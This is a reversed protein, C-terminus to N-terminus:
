NNDDCEKIIKLYINNGRYKYHHKEIAELFEKDYEKIGNLIKVSKQPHNYYIDLKKNSDYKRLKGKTLKDLIVIISKDIITLSGNIKGIDHLLAIKAIKYRDINFEKHIKLADKCVRISHQQESIKLKLFIKKEDDSLYENIIEEDLPKFRATIGWFFQKIRYIFM